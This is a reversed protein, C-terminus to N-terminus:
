LESQGEHRRHCDHVIYRIAANPLAAIDPQGGFWRLWCLLKAAVRNYANAARKRRTQPANAARKRRTQPANAARKRHLPTQPLNSARKCSVDASVSGCIYTM